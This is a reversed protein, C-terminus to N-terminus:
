LSSISRASREHAEGRRASSGQAQGRHARKKRARKEEARKKRASRGEAHASSGPAEERRPGSVAAFLPTWTFFLFCLPARGHEGLLRLSLSPSRALARSLTWAIPSRTPSSQRGCTARGLYAVKLHFTLALSIGGPWALPVRSQHHAGTAVCPSRARAPAPACVPQRSCTAAARRIEVCLARACTRVRVWAGVCVVADRPV